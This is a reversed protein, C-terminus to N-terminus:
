VVIVAVCAAEVKNKDPVILAVSVTFMIGVSNFKGFRVL